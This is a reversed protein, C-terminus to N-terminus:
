DFNIRSIFHRNFDKSGSLEIYDATGVMRESVARAKASTLMMRGGDGAANGIQSIRSLDIDPLLGIRVANELRIHRGFAGAVLIEAIDSETLGHRSLLMDIGARIAGKALQVARIDAQSFTIDEDDMDDPKHLVLERRNNVTRILPHGEILRGRKDANGSHYLAAVIDIVASGCIGAPAAGGITSFDVSDGTIRLSDIAGDVARMGCDIEGGELAPGSPCSLSALTGGHLLSIETNTGIDVLLVPATKTDGGLGAGLLAAAHDSGVYGAIIAPLYARADAHLDLGLDRADLVLAKSVHPTFPALALDRIPYGAFLHHMATNGAIVIEVVWEKRCGTFRCLERINRNLCNVITKRLEERETDGRIAHALRSVVDAGYRNQANPAEILGLTEGTELDALFIALSTTGLDVAIGLPRAVDPVRTHAAGTIDRDVPLPPFDPVLVRKQAGEALIRPTMHLTCDGAPLFRCAKRWGSALQAETLGHNGADDSAAGNTIRVLCTKCTGVGGCATTLNIGNRQAAQLVTEGDRCHITRALEKLIVGPAAM